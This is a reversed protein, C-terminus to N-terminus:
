EWTDDFSCTDEYSSNLTDDFSTQFPHTSPPTDDSSTELIEISPPIDDFANATDAREMLMKEKVKNLDIEVNQIMKEYDDVIKIRLINGKDDKLPGNGKDDKLTGNGKDNKLVTKGKDYKSKEHQQKSFERRLLDDLIENSIVDEVLWKNEYKELVYDIMENM